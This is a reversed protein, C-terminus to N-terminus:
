EFGHKKGWGKPDAKWDMVIAEHDAAIKELARAEEVMATFVTGTYLSCNAERFAQEAEAMEYTSIALCAEVIGGAERVPQIARVSSGGTSIHDEIILVRQGQEFRGEIQNKRGHEKPKERIYIMPKRTRDAIIGAWGIGATAIGAIVDYEIRHEQIMDLYVKVIAERADVNSLLARNDCYIPSKIGSAYTYPETSRIIVCAAELQVRAVRRERSEAAYLTTM